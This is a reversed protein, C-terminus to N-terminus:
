GDETTVGLVGTLLGLGLGLIARAGAGAAVATTVAAALLVRRETKRLNFM